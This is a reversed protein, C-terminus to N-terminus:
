AKNADRWKFSNFNENRSNLALVDMEGSTLKNVLDFMLSRMEETLEKSAGRNKDKITIDVKQKYDTVRAEERELNLKDTDGNTQVKRVLDELEFYADKLEQEIQPWEQQKELTDLQLLEKRLGDLIKMKGDASGKENELQNELNDLRELIENANVTRACRKANAIKKTLESAEPAEIAKIPIELEETYELVPFEAEFKMLGSKDVKITINVDSGEPLLAPLNEGTIIM